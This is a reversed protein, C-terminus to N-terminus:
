FSESMAHIFTSASGRPSSARKLDVRRWRAVGDKERDRDAEVIQAFQGGAVVPGHAELISKAADPGIAALQKL